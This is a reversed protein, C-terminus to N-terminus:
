PKVPRSPVVCGYDERAAEVTVVRSDFWVPRQRGPAQAIDGVDQDRVAITRWHGLTTALILALQM